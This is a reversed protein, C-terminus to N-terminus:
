LPTTWAQGNDVPMTSPANTRTSADVSDVAEPRALYVRHSIKNGTKVEEVRLRGEERLLRVAEKVTGNAMRAAKRVQSYPAGEGRDLDEVVKLVRGTAKRLGDAERNVAPGAQRGRGGQRAAVAEDLPRVQVDWRRGTGDSQIKGERVSLGFGGAQGRSGGYNVLLEHDGPRTPDYAHLRSLLFWQRAAEALGAGSLDDLQMLRGAPFHKWSHHCFIPTAGATTCADSFAGILNGMAALNATNGAQDGLGRGFPDYVVLKVWRERIWRHVSALAQPDDLRPLKDFLFFMKDRVLRQLDLGRGACIRGATEWLTASGSEGSFIAAPEAPSVPFHGLFRTGSAISLVLDLAISTKLNKLPGGILGLLLRVLVWSVHWDAAGRSSPAEAVRGLSDELAELRERQYDAQEERQLKARIPRVQPLYEKPLRPPVCAAAWSQLVRYADHSGAGFSVLTELIRRPLDALEEYEDDNILPQRMAWDLWEDPGYCDQPEVFRLEGADLLAREQALREGRRAAALADDQREQQRFSDRPPVIAADAKPTGNNQSM